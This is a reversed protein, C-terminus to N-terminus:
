APETQKGRALEDDCVVGLADAVSRGLAAVEKRLRRLESKAKTQEREAGRAEAEQEAARFAREALEHLEAEVDSCDGNFYDMVLQQAREDATMAM